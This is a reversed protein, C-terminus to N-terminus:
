APDVAETTADFARGRLAHDGVPGVGVAKVIGVEPRGLLAPRSRQCTTKRRAATARSHHATTVSGVRRDEPDTPVVAIHGVAKHVQVHLPRPIGHQARDTRGLSLRHTTTAQRAHAALVLDDGHGTTQLARLIPLPQADGSPAGLLFVPQQGPLVRNNEHRQSTPRATKLENIADDPQAPAVGQLVLGPRPETGISSTQAQAESQPPVLVTRPHQEVRPVADTPDTPRPDIGKSEDCRVTPQAKAYLTLVAM